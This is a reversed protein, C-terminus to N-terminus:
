SFLLSLVGSPQLLVSCECLARFVSFLSSPRLVCLLSILSPTLSATQSNQVFHSPRLPTQTKLNTLRHMQVKKKKKKKKKSNRDSEATEASVSRTPGIKAADASVGCVAGRRTPRPHAPRPAADTCGLNSGVFTLRLRRFIRCSEIQSIQLNSSSVVVWTSHFQSIALSVHVHVFTDVGTPTESPHVNWSMSHCIIIRSWTSSARTAITTVTAHTKHHLLFTILVLSFLLRPPLHSM